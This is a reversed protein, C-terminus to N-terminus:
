NDGRLSTKLLHIAPKIANADAAVFHCLVLLTDALASISTSTPFM